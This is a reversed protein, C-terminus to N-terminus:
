IAILGLCNFKYYQSKQIEKEANDLAKYVIANLIINPKYDQLIRKAREANELNAEYRSCVKLDETAVLSKYFRWGIQGDAGLLLIKM